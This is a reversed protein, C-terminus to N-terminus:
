TIERMPMSKRYVGFAIDVHSLRIKAAPDLLELEDITL